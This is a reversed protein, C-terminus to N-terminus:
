LYLHISLLLASLMILAASGLGYVLLIGRGHNETVRYRRWHYVTAGSIIGWVILGAAFVIWVMWPHSFVTGFKALMEPHM